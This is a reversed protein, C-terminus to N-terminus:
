VCVATVFMVMNVFIGVGVFMVLRLDNWWKCTCINSHYIVFIIDSLGVASRQIM